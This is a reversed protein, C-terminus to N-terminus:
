IADAMPKPAEATKGARDLAWAELYHWRFEGPELRVANRLCPVANEPFYFALYTKGLDGWALGKQRSTAGSDRIVALCRQTTAEIQQRVDAEMGDTKPPVLPEIHTLRGAVSPWLEIGLKVGAFALVAVLVAGAM